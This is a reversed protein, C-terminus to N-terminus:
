KIERCEELLQLTLSKGNVISTKEKVKKIRRRRKHGFVVVLAVVIVIIEM